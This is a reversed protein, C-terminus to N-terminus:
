SFHNDPGEDPSTTTNHTLFLLLLLLVDDDEEEEDDDELTLFFFYLLCLEPLHLLVLSFGLLTARGRGRGAAGGGGGWGFLFSFVLGASRGNDIGQSAGVVVVSRNVPKAKAKFVGELDDGKAMLIFSVQGDLSMSTVRVRGGEAWRSSEGQICHM